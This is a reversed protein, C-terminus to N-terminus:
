APRPALCYSAIRVAVTVEVPDALRSIRAELAAPETHWYSPGMTALATVAQHDLSLAAQYEREGALEFYPSLKGALREQKREDVALMRLPGILEALHDASPTTVLLCGAPGLIRHLEAGQRPAFVNLVLDAAGDGVPLPRWADCGIAVARPHAKAALRLASKSIDLALGVRAPLQDLVAALYYGTGAGVDVVCGGAPGPAPRTTPGTAPGTAPGAAADARSVPALAADAIAAALGAFYGAALFAHRAQVMAATDGANRPSGAPLLSVYGARAIDFCHGAACRLSGGTRGLGGQDCQPQDCQPCRLFSLVDDIV